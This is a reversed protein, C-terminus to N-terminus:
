GIVGNFAYYPTNAADCALDKPNPAFKKAGDKEDADLAANLENIKITGTIPDYYEKLLTTDKIGYL